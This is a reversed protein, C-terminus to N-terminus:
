DNDFICWLCFLMTYCTCKFCNVKDFTWIYIAIFLVSVEFQIFNGHYRIYAIILGFCIFLEPDM